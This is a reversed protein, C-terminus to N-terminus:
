IQSVKPQITRDISRNIVGQVTDIMETIDERGPMDEALKRLRVLVAILPSVDDMINEITMDHDAM